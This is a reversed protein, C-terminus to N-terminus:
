ANNLAGSQQSVYIEQYVESRAMLEAHTGTDLIQGGDMVVIVDADMVSTIRQAIVITTVGPAVQTLSERLRAETATDVASTSDDLILIRPQKLLARAICLRQRQGGSYNTGGQEVRAQLGDANARIFDAAQAAELATWLEGETADPNGWRLNSEITGSFLVNQQLVISVQQRLVDLDYDRVDVGGVRVTGTTVDYLRPILQVLSTKGAGTGGIIGVTVGDPLSVSVDRLALARLDDSYSFDVGTFEISGDAVETVGGDEPSTIEAKEGLVQAIRGASARSILIMVFVMSLMMLSMLIQIAYTIISVLQGTTMNGGVIQHAGVWAILLLALYVSFQMLPANLAVIREAKTFDKYISGSVTNFREVERDERVFSKVVRIGRVDEQVATNLKDYTRFVKGFLPHAARMVFFLGIGLVPILTILTSAVSPNVRFAMILAFIFMGPARVAVRVLMMFAMQVNSVDTTLRTILSGTSFKDINSFAFTQVIAFQDERLNKALGTAARAAFRGSAIGLLLSVVVLGLLVSGMRLVYGSDGAAIGRDILFAMMFPITVEVITELTAFTPALWADKRFEKLSSGIRRIVVKIPVDPTDDNGTSASPRGMRM